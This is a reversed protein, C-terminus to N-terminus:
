GWDSAVVGAGDDMKEPHRWSKGWDPRRFFLFFFIRAWSPQWSNLVADRDGIALSDARNRAKTRSNRFQGWAQWCEKVPRTSNPQIIICAARPKPLCPRAGDFGREYNIIGIGQFERRWRLQRIPALRLRFQVLSADTADDEIYSICTRVHSWSCPCDANSWPPHPCPQFDQGDHLWHVYTHLSSSRAAMLVGAM